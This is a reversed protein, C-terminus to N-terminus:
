RNACQTPEVKSGHRRRAGGQVEEEEWCRGKGEWGSDGWELQHSGGLCADSWATGGRGGVGGGGSVQPPSEENESWFGSRWILGRGGCHAGAWGSPREESKSGPQDGVAHHCREQGKSGSEKAPTGQGLAKCLELM